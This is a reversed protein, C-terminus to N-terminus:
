AASFRREEVRRDDDRVTMTTVTMTLDRDDSHVTMTTVTM